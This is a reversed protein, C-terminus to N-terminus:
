CSECGRRIPSAERSQLLRLADLLAPLEDMKFAQLREEATTVLQSYPLASHHASGVFNDVQRTYKEARANWEGVSEDDEPPLLIWDEGSWPQLAGYPPGHHDCEGANSFGRWEFTPCEAEQNRAHAMAVELGLRKIPPLQFHEDSTMAHAGLLFEIRRDLSREAVVIQDLASDWAALKSGLLPFHAHFAQDPHYGDQGYDCVTGAELSGRVALISAKLAAAHEATAPRTLFSGVSGVTLLLLGLVALALVAILAAEWLGTANRGHTVALVAGAAILGAIVAGGAKACRLLWEHDRSRLVPLPGRRAM